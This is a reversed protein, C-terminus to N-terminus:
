PTLILSGTTRRGELDAHARAADALPYRTVPGIRLAGASLEAFFRDVHRRMMEPTAVYHGYNPRSVRLSKASLGGIDWAGVLGSAQGFSVVHGRVAAAAISGAFTTAGVADYVVDAGHGGTLDRVAAVFDDRTYVIVADAGLDRALAAKEPTSVTAIVRAGLRRAWQTLLQGVGGAAAHILVTEGRGLPHV